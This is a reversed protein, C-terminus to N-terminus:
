GVIIKGEPMIQGPNKLPKASFALFFSIPGVRGIYMTIIVALKSLTNLLPTVGTTQGVTGFASAAEYFADITSISHQSLIIILATTFTVGASIFFTAFAKYVVNKEIKRHFIITDDRSKIVSWITAIIVAFTTTKIGGGTSSPSAGIFMLIINILKTISAMASLKISNFGATRVIGSQFFSANIKETLSLKDLTGTNSYELLFISLAGLVILLASVSLVIKTHLTLHRTHRYDLIDRIVIFGLGGLVVLFMVTYLVVPDNNFNTLSSYEGRFGMIDFGANCYASIATFISIFIGRKGYLPIFRTCLILAGILEFTLISVVVTRLLRPIDIFNSNGISEGAIQLSRFGMKRRISMTFFTIFSVIGIGGIQILLIIVIQGFLSWHTYTDFVILGTVCTASTATFLADIPATFGGNRSSVPLMLLIAGALIILSFSITIIKVPSM